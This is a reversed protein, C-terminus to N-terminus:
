AVDGTINALPQDQLTKVLDGSRVFPERGRRGSRSTSSGHAGFPWILRQVPTLVAVAPCSGCRAQGMAVAEGASATTSRLSRSPM